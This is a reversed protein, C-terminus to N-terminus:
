KPEVQVVTVKVRDNTGRAAAPADSVTMNIWQDAWGMFFGTWITYEGPKFVDAGFRATFRDVIFDGTRWSAMPCRGALPEHDQNLRSRGGELHVFTKWTRGIPQLVRYFFTMEFDEGLHVRAPVSWGILEVRGDWVLKAQPRSQIERPETHVISREDACTPEVVLRVNSAGAAVGGHDSKAGDRTRVVLTYSGPALGDIRFSGEVSTVGGPPPMWSSTVTDESSAVRVRADAIPAGTPDVVGGIISRREAEVVLRVDHVRAERGEVVIPAPDPGAFRFPVSGGALPFVRASYTGGALQGCDFGGADDTVCRGQDAGDQRVFQVHAGAVAAGAADVVVGAIRAAAILEPDYARDEGLALTLHVGDVYADLRNDDAILSYAGPELGELQYRGRADARTALKTPGRVMVRADPVAIGGRLVTGHIRAQPEVALTVEPNDGAAVRLSEPARVRYPAATLHVEGVAVRDLVFSGDAQSVASGSGSGSAAVHAGAVPQDGRVVHGRVVGVALMQLTIERAEGSGVSVIMPPATVGEALGGIRHRGGALGSLQFRGQEDTVGLTRAGQEDPRSEADDPEAWIEARAVPRGETTVALGSITAEPALVFDQRVRGFPAVATTIAGYGDARVVLLLQDPMAATPAVCLEYAGTTDTETGMADERRLQAHAIPAGAADVVQGHLSAVCSTLVLELADPRAVPDRLDVDVIAALKGTASASVTVEHALQPGFDFRGDSTTRLELVPVLGTSSLESTLRVLVDAAPAGDVLVQGAVRRSPAGPQAIWGPLRGGTVLADLRGRGARAPSALLQRAPSPSAAVDSGAHRVRTALLMVVVGALLLAILAVLAVITKSTKAVLVGGRAFALLAPSWTTREGLRQDLRARLRALGDRLRGRVTSEPIGLTRALDAASRGEVFRAVVTSRYPEDLELVLDALLRHLRVRELLEEPSAEARPRAEWAEDRLARRRESRRKMLALDHIVKALWPRLPRSTDPQRRWAAIWSEQVLDDADDGDGALRLALRRIWEADGLLQEPTPGDSM